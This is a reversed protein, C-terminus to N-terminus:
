SPPPTPLDCTPLELDVMGGMLDGFLLVNAPQCLGTIISSATGILILTLDIRTAYRFLAFFNVPPPPPPGEAKEEEDKESYSGNIFVPNDFGAKGNMDSKTWELELHRMKKTIIDGNNDGESSNDSDKTNMSGKM